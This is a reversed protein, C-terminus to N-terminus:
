GEEDDDDLPPLDYRADSVEDLSGVFKDAHSPDLPPADDREPDSSM